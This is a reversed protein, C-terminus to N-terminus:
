FCTFVKDILQKHQSATLLEDYMMPKVAAGKPIIDPHSQALADHALLTAQDVLAQEILSSSSLLSDYSKPTLYSLANSIAKSATKMQSM